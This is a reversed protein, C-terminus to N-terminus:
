WHGWFTLLVVKGRFDSLKLKKGHIDEGDIEPALKGVSLHRIAFLAREAIKAFTGDETEVKGFSKFMTEYVEERRKALEQPDIASLHKGYAKGYYQLVRPALDPSSKLQRVVNAETDLLLALYYCAQAKVATQPSEKMAARLLKEAGLARSRAIDKFGSGLRESALHKSQLLDLARDTDARGRVKKVVWLLADTAAEDTSHEEALTIFRKAFTRAGGEKEYEAILAKYQKAAATEEALAGGCSVLLVIMSCATTRM